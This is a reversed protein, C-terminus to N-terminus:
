YRQTVITQNILEFYDELLVATGANRDRLTVEITWIGYPDGLEGVYDIVAYALRINAPDGVLEEDACVIDNEEYSISNDPMMVKVDCTIDIHRNEDVAPNTYFTLITIKEGLQVLKTETFTPVTEQPTNWKEKWDRDSTLLLWGGFQRETTTPDTNEDPGVNQEEGGGQGAFGFSSFLLCLFIVARNM